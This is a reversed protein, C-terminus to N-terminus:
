KEINRRFLVYTTIFYCILVILFVGYVELINAVVQNETVYPIYNRYNTSALYALGMGAGFFSILVPIGFWISMQRRITSGIQKQDVGLDEIIQFRRKHETADMLQQLALVTFCIVILILSTYTGGLRLMLSNSFGENLQLTKLRIFGGGQPFTESHAMWQSVDGDIKEASNYSLPEMTNAAYYTTAITLLNCVDDPLIYAAEMGSTFIGMGVNVQYDADPVKTLTVDEVQIVPHEADFQKIADSLATNSWAVAFGHDPLSVEPYGCMHLLANYDSLSVALFPMDKKIKINFDSSKLFYTEVNASSKVAYGERNLCNNIYSADMSTKPLEDMSKATGYQSFIQVDYISREKLYGDVEGTITPLWGLLILASLLVCTLVAMTNANTKLKSAVQGLLFLHKYRFSVSKRKALILLWSFCHYAAIIGFLMMGIALIPPLMTYINGSLIGARLMEDFLGNLSLLSVGSVVSTISLLAAFLGGEKKFRVTAFFFGAALLLFAVTGVLCLLTLEVASGSLKSWVPFISHICLYLIGIALCAAMILSKFLMDKVTATSETQHEEHLMDIIKQKRIVRINGFGIIGFLAAFFLLTRAITDPYVSFYMRYSEGFSTMIIASVIQSLLTGLLIGLAVALLGMLLMEIFFLYAVTRQEMGMIIQLAFEKKRRKIMYRNVYTILFVLLLAILPVIIKMKDSFYELNMQIPLRSNYFPSTISLFGYFLGVSLILTLLYILYDRASRKVNRIALKVYM